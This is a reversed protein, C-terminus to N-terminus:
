AERRSLHLLMLLFTAVGGALGLELALAHNAATGSIINLPMLWPLYVGEKAGSAAVAVFTGGLGLTLPVVFSRFRLAVWLQIMGMFLSAGWMQTLMRAETPWPFPGAPVKHPAVAQLLVIVAPIELALLGSMAAILGMLVVGKAAFLRWRRVPLALMHDWARPGHEIQALLASLAAITMPLMFFSWLGTSGEMVDKWDLNPRKLLILVLLGAVLTPAAGCLLLVLSGKLKRIEVYLSVLM